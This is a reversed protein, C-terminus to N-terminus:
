FIKPLSSSVSRMFSRVPAMGYNFASRLNSRIERQTKTSEAIADSRTRRREIIDPMFNELRKLEKNKSTKRRKSESPHQFPDSGEDLIEKTITVPSLKFPLKLLAVPVDCNMLEENADDMSKLKKLRMVEMMAPTSNTNDVESFSKTRKRGKPTKTNNDQNKDAKMKKMIDLMAKTPNQLSDQSREAWKDERMKEYSTASICATDFVSSVRESPPKKSPGYLLDPALAEPTVVEGGLKALRFQLKGDLKSGANIIEECMIGRLYDYDPEDEFMLTSIYKMYKILFGPFKQGRFCIRLFKGMQRFALFKATKTVQPSALERDWPLSGGFWEILNYFLVELDGRRSASGIHADRSTYEMTGEHAWRIDHRYQKHLNGVRFKSCLGYDVLHVLHQGDMGLGVLLNSGKVDKHVYGQRHIYELSDIVQIAVSCATKTTFRQGESNDLIRQLDSGFREMVLFRYNQRNRVHSGNAVLKPVGLHSLGKETKFKEIEEQKTARLYFHVEVFLPGNSHPEVKVVFKEPSLKGDPNRFSAVYLEGFGGVGIPKGLVWQQKITDTLVEGRPLPDPLLFGNPSRRNMERTDETPKEDPQKAELQINKTEVKVPKPEDSDLKIDKIQEMIDPSSRDESSDDECVKARKNAVLFEIDDEVKMYDSRHRKRTRLIEGM